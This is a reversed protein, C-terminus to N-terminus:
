QPAVGPSPLISIFKSYRADLDDLNVWEYEERFEHWIFSLTDRLISAAEPDADLAYSMFDKIFIEEFGPMEFPPKESGTRIRHLLTKAQEVTLGSFSPELDLLIRSWLNFLIPRFTLDPSGMLEEDTPYTVALREILGDLVMLRRLDELSESLESLWEFDKYADKGKLGPYHQPREDLLGALTSGWAEGWFDTDLGQAFFWSEKLWREAEWKLKLTLGFGVRFLDVFSHTRLVQQAKSLNKGCLRELALNLVRAVKQCTSVLVDLEPVLLGDASMIQNCLGAFELRIRDMLIPDETEFVAGTLINETETHYLPFAPVMARMEEDEFMDLLGEPKEPGLASPDLPAYVSAAEEFPLFGHEALRVNRLRFMEEEMEAPLLGALGTLFAQYRVNDTRAMERLINEITERQESDSVRIHFVGDLSFFGAPLDYTEDNKDIVIVEMSKFLHTSALAEGEGFFWRVLRRPDAQQLRKIWASTRAKDLRDKSWVELDLLYQWQAESALELLTLCDEEGVKKLLWFFDGSSLSQVLKGPNKQGMIRSLIESGTLPHLAKMLRENETFAPKEVRTESGEENGQKQL